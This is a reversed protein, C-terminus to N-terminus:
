RIALTLHLAHAVLPHLKLDFNPYSGLRRVTRYLSPAFSFFFLRADGVILLVERHCVQVDSGLYCLLLLSAPIWSLSRLTWRRVNM